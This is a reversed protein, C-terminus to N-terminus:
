EAQLAEKPDARTARWAPLVGAGMAVALLTVAVITYISPDWPSVSFLLGGVWRAALLSTGVGLVVGAGVLALAHLLVM